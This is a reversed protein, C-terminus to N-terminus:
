LIGTTPTKLPKTKRRADAVCRLRGLTDDPWTTPETSCAVLAVIVSVASATRECQCHLGGQCDTIPGRNAMITPGWARDRTGPLGTTRLRARSVNVSKPDLSVTRGARLRHPEIRIPLGQPRGPRCWGATDVAAAAHFRDPWLLPGDDVPGRRTSSSWRMPSGVRGADSMHRVTRVEVSARTDDPERCHSRVEYPNGWSVLPRHDSLPGVPTSQRQEPGTLLPM